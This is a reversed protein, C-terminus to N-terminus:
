SGLVKFVRYRLKGGVQDTYLLFDPTTDPSLETLQCWSRKHLNALAIFTFMQKLFDLM